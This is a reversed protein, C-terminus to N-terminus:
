SMLQQLLVCVHQPRTSASARLAVMCTYLRTRTYASLLTRYSAHGFTGPCVYHWSAKCAVSARMRERNANARPECESATRLRVRNAIARPECNDCASATEQLTPSNLVRESFQESFHLISFESPKENRGLESYVADSRRLHHALKSVDTGRALCATLANHMWLQCVTAPPGLPLAATAPWYLRLRLCPAPRSVSAADSLLRSRHATRCRSRAVCMSYRCLLSCVPVPTLRAQM